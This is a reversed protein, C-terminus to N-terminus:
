AVEAVAEILERVAAHRNFPRLRGVIVRLMHLARGSPASRVADVALMAADCAEDVRRLQILAASRRTLCLTRDRDLGSPWSYLARACAEEAEASNGLVLWGLAGEMHLYSTTCYPSVADSEDVSSSALDVAEDIAQRMAGEDRLRASALAQQRLCVPVLRPFEFKARELASRGVSLALRADDGSTTLVNAKRMLNYTARERDGAGEALEAARATLRLAEGDNGLDQHLWGAFEYFRGSLSMLGAPGSDALRDLQGLQALATDLIFGPGVANDLRTHEALQKEFYHLVAENPGARFFNRQVLGTLDGSTTEQGPEIGLSRADLGLAEELLLVYIPEPQAADNEWRSLMVRLSPDSAIPMDLRKAIIAM